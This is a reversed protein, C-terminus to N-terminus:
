SSIGKILVSITTIYSTDAYSFEADQQYNHSIVYVYINLNVPGSNGLRCFHTFLRFLFTLVIPEIRGRRV